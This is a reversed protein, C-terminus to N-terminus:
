SYIFSSLLGSCQLCFDEAKIHIYIVGLKVSGSIQLLKPRTVVLVVSKLEVCNGKCNLQSGRFRIGVSFGMHFM